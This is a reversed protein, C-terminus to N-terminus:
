FKHPQLLKVNLMVPFFVFVGVKSIDHLVFVSVPASM